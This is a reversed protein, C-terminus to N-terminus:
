PNKLPSSAKATIGRFYYFNFLPDGSPDDLMAGLAGLGQVVNVGLTRNGSHILVSIVGFYSTIWVGVVLALALLCPVRILWRRIM